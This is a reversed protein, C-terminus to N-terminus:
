TNRVSAYYNIPKTAGKRPATYKIEVIQHELLVPLYRRVSSESVKMRRAIQRVSLAYDRDLIRVLQVQRKSHRRKIKM